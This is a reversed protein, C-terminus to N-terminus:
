RGGDRRYYDTRGAQYHAAHREDHPGYQRVAEVVRGMHDRRVSMGRRPHATIRPADSTGEGIVFYASGQVLAETIALRVTTDMDNVQWWRRLLAPTDRDDGLLYGEPTLVEALVDVALKPFPAAMELVRAAPPLSIGLADLTVNGEYYSEFRSDAVPVSAVLTDFSVHVGGM